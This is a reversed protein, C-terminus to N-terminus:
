QISGFILREVVKASTVVGPVGAGPHTGAGVFYLGRVDPSRNPFRFGASQGLTPRLSFASGWPSLLEDAFYQPTVFFDDIVHSKLGPLIRLTLADLLRQRLAPGATDWDIDAQLHPVPVLAYFSDTGEAPYTPDTAGPRHLYISLDRPVCGGEFVDHLTERYTRGFLITHHPVDAYCKNTTFYWVFVGMAYRKRALQRAGHTTQPLMHALAHGPDANIVVQQASWTREDHASKETVDSVDTVGTLGIVGTVQRAFNSAVRRVTTNWVFEIGHREGLGVLARVLAAMGGKPFWVGSQRELAHILSYICTTNFPNGGVLLPQISFARRVREDKFYRCTLAYVSRDARLRLMTPLVKIMSWWGLFPQTGLEVYGKDYLRQSCALYAPYQAADAVSFREIEAQIQATGGGYNLQTGDDFRMQYWPTVPLLEVHDTLREGFLAFLEEFLEPATLVTPGADYRYPGRVFERARGGPGPLRDIVVTKCGRAQLRLAAALGGLGAGVVVSDPNKLM